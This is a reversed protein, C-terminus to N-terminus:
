KEYTEKIVMRDIKGTSTKPLEGFIVEEPIMYPPIHQKLDEKVSVITHEGEINVFAVLKNSGTEQDPLALVAAEKVYPLSIIAADVDGLEIRNGRIKVQNDKRGIFEYNGDDRQQVLDGTRYTLGKSSDFPHAVFMAATREPDHWYGAGVGKGSVYLEGVEGATALMGDENVAMVEVNKCAKGIPVLKSMDTPIEKIVYFTCQVTTETPGYMNVFMKEPYTKMWEILFKTPFGEGNFFIKKLKSLRHPHIVGSVWLQVMVSPVSDWITLENEEMFKLIQGPFLSFEEPMLYLTAGAKFVCYLDFTSLDFHLPPHQSMRDTETIGLEDVAWETANIINSHRIMVGKPTGTSGSTYLIYAIDNATNAYSIPYASQTNLMEVSEDLNLIDGLGAVLSQTRTDCIILRPEASEIMTRIRERPAHANLPVYIADAKLISVLSIISNLSKHLCFAVRDGKQVGRTKLLRAFRNTKEDLEGSTLCHEHFCVAPKRPNKKANASIYEQALTVM